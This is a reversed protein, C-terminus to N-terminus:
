SPTTSLCMRVWTSLSSKQLRPYPLKVVEAELRSILQEVQVLQLLNRLM